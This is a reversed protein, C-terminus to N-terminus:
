LIKSYVSPLLLVYHVCEAACARTAAATGEQSCMRSCMGEHCRSDGGIFVNQQVHEGPVQQGRRHVCEAECAKRAAATRKESCMRSCMSEQCMSNGGIFVNQQM